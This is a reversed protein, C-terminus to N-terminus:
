KLPAFHIYPAFWAPGNEKILQIRWAQSEDQSFQIAIGHTKAAPADSDDELIQDGTDSNVQANFNSFILAKVQPERRYRHAGFSLEDDTM